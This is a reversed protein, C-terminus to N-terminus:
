SHRATVATSVRLSLMVRFATSTGGRRFRVKDGDMEVRIERNWSFAQHENLVLYEFM